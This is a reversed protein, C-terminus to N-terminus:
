SCSIGLLLDVMLVLRLAMAAYCCWCWCCRSAFLRYERFSLMYVCGIEEAYIRMAIKVLFISIRDGNVLLLAPVPGARERQVRHVEEAAGRGRRFGEPEWQLQRVARVEHRRVRRLAEGAEAAAGQAPPPARRGGAVAKDRRSRRHVEGQHVGAAFQHSEGGFGEAIGEQVGRGHLHRARRSERSVRPVDHTHQPLRQLNEPDRPPQHLLHRNQGRHRPPPVPLRLPSFPDIQPRFEGFRVGDAAIKLTKFRVAPTNVTTTQPIRFDLM